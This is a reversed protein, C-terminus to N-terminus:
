DTVGVGAHAFLGKPDHTRKVACLREYDGADFVERIHAASVDGEGLWNLPGRSLTWPRLAALGAEAHEAMLRPHEPSMPVGLYYVIYEAERRGGLPTAARDARAMAGGVHRLQIMLNPSQAPVGVAGLFADIAEADLAKLMAGRGGAPLPDVPDNYISGNELSPMWRFSDFEAGEMERMPKLLAEGEAADTAACAQLMLMSRGHLFEPVFPVPPFTIMTVTSTVSEPLTQTWELWARYVQPARSADFMVNGAFAHAHPVLGVVIQTVVGYAGGGGLMAWFLDPNEQASAAVLRGDPLVVRMSRVHDVTLGYKRVLVGVGGGLTYGVVGVGPSSGHLPVLGHPHAAAVVKSWQAGGGIAATVGQPDIEVSDLQSVDLLLGGHARRPQGHGTAQVTVKLGHQHAYAVAAQVDQEDRAVAILDPTHAIAVNWGTRLADYRDSAPTHLEGAFGEINPLSAHTNM